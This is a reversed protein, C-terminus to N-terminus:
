AHALARKSRRRKKKPADAVVAGMHDRLWEKAAEALMASRSINAVHCARDIAALVRDDISLNVRRRVGVTVLPVEVAYAAKDFEIAVKTDALLDGHTRPEPMNGGDEGVANAYERLSIKANEIAEDYTEGTGYCGPLDPFSVGFSSNPDKYIYAIYTRM